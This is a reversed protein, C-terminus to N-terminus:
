DAIIIGGGANGDDGHGHGHGHSQPAHNHGPIPQDVKIDLDTKTYNNVVAIGLTVDGAKTTADTKKIIKYETNVVTYVAKAETQSHAYVKVNEKVAPEEKYTDKLTAFFQNVLMKDEFDTADNKTSVVKNGTKKTYRITTTLWYDSPNAVANKGDVPEKKDTTSEEVEIKTEATEKQLIITPTLSAFQGAQLEPVDVKVEVSMDKYSATVTAKTAALTPNGTFTASPSITVTAATTVDTTVGNEVALVIPSITAQANIPEINVNFEEKECSTFTTALAVVALAFVANIGNLFKIKKM